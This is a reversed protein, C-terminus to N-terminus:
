AEDALGGGHGWLPERPRLNPRYPGSIAAASLFGWTFSRLNHMSYHHDFYDHIEITFIKYVVINRYFLYLPMAAVPIPNTVEAIRTTCAPPSSLIAHM